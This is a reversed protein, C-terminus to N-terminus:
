GKKQVLYCLHVFPLAVQVYLGTIWFSMFKHCSKRTNHGQSVILLDIQPHVAEVIHDDEGRAPPLNSPLPDCFCNQYQKLFEGQFGEVKSIKNDLKNHMTAANNVQAEFPFSLQTSQM